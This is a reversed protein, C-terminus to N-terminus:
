YTVSLKGDKPTATQRFEAKRTFKWRYKLRVLYALEVKHTVLERLDNFSFHALKLSIRFGVTVNPSVCFASSPGCLASNSVGYPRVAKEGSMISSKQVKIPCPLM